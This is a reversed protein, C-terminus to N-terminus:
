LDMYAKPCAVKHGDLYTIMKGLKTAILVTTTSIYLKLEAVHDQFSSTLLVQKIVRIQTLKQLQVQKGIKTTM